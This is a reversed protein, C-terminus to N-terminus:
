EFWDEPPENPHLWKVLAEGCVDYMEDRSFEGDVRTVVLRPRGTADLQEEFVIRRRRGRAEYSFEFTV